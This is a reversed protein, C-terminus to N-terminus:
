PSPLNGSPSPTIYGSVKEGFFIIDPKVLGDCGNEECRAIRAESIASKMKDQDYPMKCEICRSSAFSGHAEVVKDPPVGAMRELTDINQTFCTHLKGKEHLLRIFAHAPTPIFRGPAIDSALTYVAHFFCNDSFLFLLLPLFSM